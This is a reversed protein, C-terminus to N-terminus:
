GSIISFVILYKARKPTSFARFRAQNNTILYRDICALVLMTKTVQAIVGPIYGSFKCLIIAGITRDDHFPFTEFFGSALLYLINIIASTMLYIPCANQRHRSFIILIFVNGISGLVMSASYGYFILQTQITTLTSSSIEVDTNITYLISPSTTKKKVIPM